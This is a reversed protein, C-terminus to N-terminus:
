KRNSELWQEFDEKERAELMVKGDPRTSVLYRYIDADDMENAERVLLQEIYNKLNLGMTAAKVSLTRFVDDPIDILKRRSPMKSVISTEM